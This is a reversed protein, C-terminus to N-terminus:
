MEQSGEETWDSAEESATKMSVDKQHSRKRNEGLKQDGFNNRVDVTKFLFSFINLEM